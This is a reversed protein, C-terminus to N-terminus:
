DPIYIKRLSFKLIFNLTFYRQIEKLCVSVIALTRHHLDSDFCVEFFIKFIPVYVSRFFMLKPKELCSLWSSAVRDRPGLGPLAGGGLITSESGQWTILCPSGNYFFQQRARQRNKKALCYLLRWRVCDGPGLGPLPGVWYLPALPAHQEM